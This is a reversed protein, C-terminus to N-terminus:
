YNMISSAGGGFDLQNGMISSGSVPSVASTIDKAFGSTAASIVNSTNANKSVIVAIVALGVIATAVTIVGSWLENM